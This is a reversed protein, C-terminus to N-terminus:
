MNDMIDYTITVMTIIFAKFFPGKQPRLPKIRPSMDPLRRLEQHLIENTIVIFQNVWSDILLFNM